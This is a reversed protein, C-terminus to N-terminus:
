TRAYRLHTEGNLGYKLMKGEFKFGLLEVWRCGESFGEEVTAELRMWDQMSLFRKTAYHLWNMHPSAKSSLLAWCAGHGKSQEVIGGCLIVRDGDFASVSPGTPKQLSEYLGPVISVERVQTEQIGQSRMLDIHNLEFPRVIM